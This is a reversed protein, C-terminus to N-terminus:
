VKSRLYDFIIQQNTDFDFWKIEKDRKFWTMQRKALKMTNLVIHEKAENLKGGEELYNVIEKYGVCSLPAWSKPAVKLLSEVEEVLGAELMKQVRLQIRKKLVERDIKLGIRIIPHNLARANRNNKHESQIESLPRGGARILTLARFIRYKDNSSIKVAYDPDLTLLEHYLGEVGLENLKLLYEERIEASVREVDYMGKELAQLYFGSGGVFFLIRESSHKNIIEIAERRFEGATMKEGMDRIDFLYHPCQSREQLSPKATGINLDTFFQLSDFNVIAGSFELAAQISFDSKGVGTPGVVFVLPYLKSSVVM